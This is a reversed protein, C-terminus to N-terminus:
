KKRRAVSLRFPFFWKIAVAEAPIGAETLYLKWERATFGRAVSIPADHKIIFNSFFLKTVYKIFYYPVPHRHLDNIIWGTSARRDMWKIFQVLESDSLHHSFLSSIIVDTKITDDIDFVNATLFQISLKRDTLREAIKKSWPNLDVGTLLIKRDKILNAIRRLMDGGGSGIDLISFLKEKDHQILIERLWLLTPRYALTIINIKELQVLCEHYDAYAVDGRDLLELKQSRGRFNSRESSEGTRTIEPESIQEITM